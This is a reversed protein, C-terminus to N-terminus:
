AVDCGKGDYVTYYLMCGDNKGDAPFDMWAEKRSVRACVASAKIM